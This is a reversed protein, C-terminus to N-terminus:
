AAALRARAERLAPPGPLAINLARLLAYTTLRVGPDAPPFWPLGYLRRVRRPLLSVAASLPILYLPRAYAPMPPALLFRLGRRAADSVELPAARLTDRLQALDAPVESPALGM